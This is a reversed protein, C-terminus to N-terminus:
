MRNAQQPTTLALNTIKWTLHKRPRMRVEMDINCMPYVLYMEHAADMLM